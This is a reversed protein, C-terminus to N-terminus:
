EDDSGNVPTVERNRWDDRLLGYGVKDKYTGDGVPFDFRLHAEKVYGCKHFVRRMALNDVRTWGEIRHKSPFTRFLYRTLWMIGQTGIGQGRFPAHLRIHVEAHIMSADQYQIVGVPRGTESTIWFTETYVGNDIWDAVQTKTPTPTGNFPYTDAAIFDILRKRQDETFPTFSIKGM